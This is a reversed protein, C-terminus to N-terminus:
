FFFKANFVGFIGDVSDGNDSVPFTLWGSEVGLIFSPRGTYWFGLVTGSLGSGLRDMPLGQFYGLTMGLPVHYRDKFDVEGLFGIRNSGMLVSGSDDKDRVGFKGDVRVGFTPDFAYAWQATAQMTWSKSKAILPADDLDGGNRIYQSFGWLDFATTSSYDWNIGGTLQSREGRMILRKVWASLKMDADAGNAM